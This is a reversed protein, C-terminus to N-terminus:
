SKSHADDAGKQASAANFFDVIVDSSLTFLWRVKHGAQAQAVRM